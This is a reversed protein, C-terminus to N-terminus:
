HSNLLHLYSNHDETHHVQSDIFVILISAVIPIQDHRNQLAGPSYSHIVVFHILNLQVSEFLLVPSTFDCDHNLSKLDDLFPLLM